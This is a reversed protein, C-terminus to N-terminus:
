SSENNSLMFLDAYEDETIDEPVDDFDTENEGDSNSEEMFLDDYETGDLSNYISCKKFSKQILDPKIENWAKIIWECVIELNAHRMQSGKTFSKEGELMWTNWQRKLNQKFSKNICVVLPQVLSTLGGPIVTINTNCETLLKKMNDTLHSRFMDWVLLSQPNRLAGLRRQWINKIWLKVGNEDMWGKEHVHIFVDKPFNSKPVTKRKFIVMPKLKTGDALCSLVVTFHSKEHGTTKIHIMKTGKMDITKNGIKDFTVPTEHMNGIHSLLCKKQKRFGIVYKQFKNDVDKSLMQSVKTKERLVLNNRAMFRSCWVASFQKLIKVKMQM